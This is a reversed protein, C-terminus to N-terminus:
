FNNNLIEQMKNFIIIREYNKAGTLHAIFSDKTWPNEVNPRGSWTQTEHMLQPVSNLYKKDVKKINKDQIKNFYMHNITQQEQLDSSLFIQSTNMFSEIFSDINKNKRVIFNGTNFPSDDNEQKFHWDCSAFFCHDADTINEIKYDFNTIFADADIWMVCDYLSLMQLAYFVRLFGVHKTDFNAEKVPLWEKKVFLDYGHKSCYKIKSQLTLDLVNFMRSDSGTLLLTKM